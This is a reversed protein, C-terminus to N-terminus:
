FVVVRYWSPIRDCWDGRHCASVIGSHPGCQWPLDVCVPKQSSKGASRLMRLKHNAQRFFQFLHFMNANLSNSFMKQLQSYKENFHLSGVDGFDGLYFYRFFVHFLTTAAIKSILVVALHGFSRPEFGAVYKSPLLIKIVITKPKLQITRTDIYKYYYLYLKYM